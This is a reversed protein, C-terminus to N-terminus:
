DSDSELNNDSEDSNQPMEIDYYYDSHFSELVNSLLDENMNRRHSSVRSVKTIKAGDQLCCLLCLTQGCSGQSTITGGIKSLLFIHEPQTVNGVLLVEVDACELRVEVKM